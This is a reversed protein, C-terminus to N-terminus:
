ALHEENSANINAVHEQVACPHDELIKDIGGLHEILEDPLFTDLLSDTGYNKRLYDVICDHSLQELAETSNIETKITESM